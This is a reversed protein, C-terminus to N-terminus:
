PVDRFCVRRRQPVATPCDRMLFPVASSRLHVRISSRRVKGEESIGHGNRRREMRACGLQVFGHAPFVPGPVVGNARVVRVVFAFVEGKAVGGPQDVHRREVLVVHATRVRRRKKRTDHHPVNGAQFDPLHAIAAPAVLLALDEVVARDPPQVVRVKADRRSLRRIAPQILVRSAEVHRDLVHAACDGRERQLPRVGTLYQLLHDVGVDFFQTKKAQRLATDVPEVCDDRAGAVGAVEAVFDPDRVLMRDREPIHQDLRARGEAHQRRPQVCHVHGADLGPENEVADVIKRGITAQDLRALRRRILKAQAPRHMEVALREVSLSSELGLLFAARGTM